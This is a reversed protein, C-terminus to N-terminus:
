AFVDLRGAAPVPREQEDDAERLPEYVTGPTGAPRRDRGGRADRERVTAIGSSETM